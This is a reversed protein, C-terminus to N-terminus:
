RWIQQIGSRTREMHHLCINHHEMSHLAIYISRVFNAMNLIEIMATGYMSM